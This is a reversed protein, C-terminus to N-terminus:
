KEEERRRQLWQEIVVHPVFWHLDGTARQRLEEMMYDPLRFWLKKDKKRKKKGIAENAMDRLQASTYGYEVAEELLKDALEPVFKGLALHHNFTLAEVRREPPFRKAAYVCKYLVTRTFATAQQALDFSIKVGYHQKGYLIWDGIWWFTSMCVHTLARGIDIWESESLGASIRMETPSLRAGQVDYDALSKYKAPALVGRHPPLTEPVGSKQYIEFKKDVERKLHAFAQPYQLAIDYSTFYGHRNLWKQTPVYGGNVIALQELIEVHKQICATSHNRKKRRNAAAGRNEIVALASAM